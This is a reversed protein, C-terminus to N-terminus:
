SLTDSSLSTPAVLKIYNSGNGSAENLQIYGASTGAAKFGTASSSLGTVDLTGTISTNGTVSTVGTIAVTGTGKSAINLNINTDDGTAALTPGNSAAANTITIENIASATGAGM